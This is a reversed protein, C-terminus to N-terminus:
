GKGFIARFIAFALVSLLLIWGGLAVFFAPTMRTINPAIGIQSKGTYGGLVDSFFICALPLILFVLVRAWDSQRGFFLTIALSLCSILLAFVKGKNDNIWELIEQRNM